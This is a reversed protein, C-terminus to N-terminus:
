KGNNILIASENIIIMNRIIMTYRVAVKEHLGIYCMIISRSNM